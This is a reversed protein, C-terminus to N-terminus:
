LVGVCYRQYRDYWNTRWNELSEDILANVYELCARDNLDLRFRQRLERIADEPRGRFCALDENGLKLMEVLVIIEHCHKRLSIFTRYCLTRFVSFLHSDPGGLVSVFERTLKFPASEFGTNKGPSSLFFFGFDIHIIHGRNDLLINGNHRDKIQLLFCVISYAALSECFNAKADALSDAECFYQKFFGNLDTYDPDNKKLASLSITDPIAEIIGGNAELALIENPCLWVPVKDRALILAMRQILQSALQEQRLDDNSKILVPLLRWGPHNGYASTSRIREEKEKWNEKFVVPPPKAFHKSRNKISPSTPPRGKQNSNSCYDYYNDGEDHEDDYADFTDTRSDLRFSGGDGDSFSSRSSMRRNIMTGLGSNVTKYNKVSPASLDEVAPDSFEISCSRKKPAPSKTWQGMAGQQITACPSRPSPPEQLQLQVKKPPSSMSDIAMEAEGQEVDDSTAVGYANSKNAAVETHLSGQSLNRTERLSSSICDLNEPATWFDHDTSDQRIRSVSHVFQEQMEQMSEKMKDPIKGMGHTMRHFATERRYPDRPKNRWHEVLERESLASKRNMMLSREFLKGIDRDAGDQTPREHTYDVVELCVICPVREKTSIAISEEEVIRWVRHHINQIPVYIENCPLAEVELLQLQKKFEVKRLDRPVKFLNDAITVLADMFVPTSDFYSTGFPDGNLISENYSASLRAGNDLPLFAYRRNSALCEFHKKSPVGNLPNTPILGSEAAIKPSLPSSSSYQHNNHTAASGNDTQDNAFLAVAINTTRPPSSEMPFHKGGSTTGFHLLRAPEEGCKMIKRMLEEIVAREEPLLKSVNHNDDEQTAFSTLSSSHSLRSVMQQQPIQEVVNGGLPSTNTSELSWARLFWYCKHAFFLNKRCIELIWEELHHSSEYAGHLLFSLLQPVFLMLAAGDDLDYVTNLKDISSHDNSHPHNFNNDGAYLELIVRFPALSSMLHEVGSATAAAKAIKNPKQYEELRKTWESKAKRLRVQIEMMVKNSFEKLARKSGSDVRRMPSQSCDPGDIPIGIIMPNDHRGDRTKHFGNQHVVGSLLGEREAYHDSGNQHQKKEKAYYLLVRPRRRGGVSFEADSPATSRVHFFLAIHSLTSVLTLLIAVWLSRTVLIHHMNGNASNSAAIAQLLSTLSQPDIMLLALVHFFLIVITLGYFLRYVIPCRLAKGFFSHYPLPVLLLFLRIAALLVIYGYHYVRRATDDDDDDSDDFIHLGDGDTIDSHFQKDLLYNRHGLYLIGIDCVAAALAPFLFPM